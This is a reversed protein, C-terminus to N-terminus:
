EHEEALRERQVETDEATAVSGVLRKAEEQHQHGPEIAQGHDEHQADLQVGEQAPMWAGLSNLESGHLHEQGRRFYCVVARASRPQMTADSPRAPAALCRM